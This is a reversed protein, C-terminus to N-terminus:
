EESGQDDTQAHVEELHQAAQFQAFPQEANPTKWGCLKCTPWTIPQNM